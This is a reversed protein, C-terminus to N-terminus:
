STPAPYVDLGMAALLRHQQDANIKLDQISAARRLDLGSVEAGRLDAGKLRAGDIIAQFLDAGTLDAGELDAGTLDAERLRSASLECGALGAGAMEALELNCNRFIAATRVVKRGFARHFAARRFQAAM